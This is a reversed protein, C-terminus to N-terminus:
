HRRMEVVVAKHDSGGRVLEVHGPAWPGHRNTLVYDIKAGHPGSPVKRSARAAASLDPTWVRSPVQGNIDGAIVRFPGDLLWEAMRKQQARYERAHSPRSTKFAPPHASAFRLPGHETRFHVWTLGRYSHFRPSSMRAHGRRKADVADPDWYVATSQAERPRYFHWGRPCNRAPDSDRNEQASIMVVGMEALAQFDRPLGHSQLRGPSNYTAVRLVM